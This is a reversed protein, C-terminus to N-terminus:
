RMRRWADPRWALRAQDRALAPVHLYESAIALGRRDAIRALAVGVLSVRGETMALEPSLQGDYASADLEAKRAKLYARLAPSFGKADSRVLARCIALRPDSSGQLAAEWRELLKDLSAREAGLELQALVEHFLFEEEYEEGQCWRRRTKGAIERATDLDGAALADIFPTAESFPAARLKGLRQLGHLFARGSWHLRLRFTGPKGTLLLDAIAALRLNACFLRFDEASAKSHDLAPLLDLNEGIANRAYIALKHPKM